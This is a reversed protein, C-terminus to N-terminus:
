EQVKELEAMCERWPRTDAKLIAKMHRLAYENDERTNSVTCDCPVVLEFDRMYADSATFLVCINGSLGTLILKRCELYRLLTDLTTSFFGSHKPKIVFYDEKGPQLLEVMPKGPVDDDLCHKVLMELNSQWRGFNDNVYIVPIGRRHCEQKLDRLERAMSLAHPLLKPGEQFDLDNIVDLLILAVASKDPVFGHLDPNKM